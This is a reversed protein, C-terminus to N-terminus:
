SLVTAASRRRIWGGGIVLDGDYFVAAQGPTVARLPETLRILAHDKEHSVITAKAGEHGHRVRVSIEKTSDPIKELWNLRDIEFEECLLDSEKGLIVRKQAAYIAM